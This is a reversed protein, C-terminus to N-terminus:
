IVGPAASPEGPASGPSWCTWGDTPTPGSRRAPPSTTHRLTPRTTSNAPSFRGGSPLSRTPGRSRGKMGEPGPTLVLEAGLARMIARREKSMTEPMIIVARYGRAAAVMALAIGTNGSTAEVICGGPQLQGSTEAADVITVAIRDKVSNAPNFFELKALVTAQSDEGLRNLRVLPTRGVVATVNESVNM